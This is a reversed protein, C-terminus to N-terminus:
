CPPYLPLRAPRPWDAVTSLLLALLLFFFFPCFRCLSSPNPCVPSLPHRSNPYARVCGQGPPPPFSPFAARCRPLLLFPCLLSCLLSPQLTRYVPPVCLPRAPAATSGGLGECSPSKPPLPHSSLSPCLVSGLPFFCFACPSLLACVRSPRCVSKPCAPGGCRMM